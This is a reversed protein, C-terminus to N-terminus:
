ILVKVGHRAARGKREEKSQGADKPSRSFLNKLPSHWSKQLPSVHVGSRQARSGPQAHSGEPKHHGGARSGPQAHSGESKHHGQARSGPQAHSHGGSNTHVHVGSNHAHVGPTAHTSYSPGSVGGYGGSKFAHRISDWRLGSGYGFCCCSAGGLAVAPPISAATPIVFILALAGVVLLIGLAILSVKLLTNSKKKNQEEPKAFIKFESRNETVNPTM